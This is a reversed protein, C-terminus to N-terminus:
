GIARRVDTIEVSNVDKIKALQTEILDPDNEEKWGITFMLSKLGFAVPIEEANHLIAGLELLKKEINSKLKDMDVNPSVPMVRFIVACLAM